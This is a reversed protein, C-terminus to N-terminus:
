DRHASPLSPHFPPSLRLLTLQALPPRQPAWAPLVADRPGFGARTSQRRVTHIARFLHERQHRDSIYHELLLSYMESHINEIAIQFGYFARAQRSPITPVPKQCPFPAADTHPHPLAASPLDARIAPSAEPIQIDSM